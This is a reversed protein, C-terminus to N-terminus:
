KKTIFAPKSQNKKQDEKSKLLSQYHLMKFEETKAYNEIFKGLNM